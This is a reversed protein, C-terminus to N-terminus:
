VYSQIVPLVGDLCARSPLDLAEFIDCFALRDCALHYALVAACQLARVNGAVLGRRNKDQRVTEREKQLLGMSVNGPSPSVLGFGGILTFAAAAGCLGGATDRIADFATVFRGEVALAKPTESRPEAAWGGIGHM